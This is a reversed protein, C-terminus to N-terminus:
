CELNDAVVELRFTNVPVPNNPDMDPINDYTCTQGNGSIVVEHVYCAVPTAAPSFSYQCRLRHTEGPNKTVKFSCEIWPPVETKVPPPPPDHGDLVVAVLHATGVAKIRLKVQDGNAVYYHYPDGPEQRKM